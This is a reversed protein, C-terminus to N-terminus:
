AEDRIVRATGCYVMKKTKKCWKKHTNYRSFYEHGCNNCKRLKKIQGNL